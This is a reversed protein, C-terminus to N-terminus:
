EVLRSWCSFEMCLLQVSGSFLGVLRCLMECCVTAIQSPHGICPMIVILGLEVSVSTWSVGFTGDVHALRRLPGVCPRRVQCHTVPVILSSWLLTM